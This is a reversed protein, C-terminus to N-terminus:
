DNNTNTNYANTTITIIVVHIINDDYNDIKYNFIIM